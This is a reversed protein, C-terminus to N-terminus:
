FEIRYRKGKLTPLRREVFRRLTEETVFYRGGDVGDAMVAPLTLTACFREGLMVDFKLGGKGGGRYM